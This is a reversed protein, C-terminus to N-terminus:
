FSSRGGGNNKSSSSGHGSSSSSERKRRKTTTHTYIDRKALVKSSSFDLYTNCDTTNTGGSSLVMIFVIIGSVFMSGFIEILLTPTTTIPRKHEMFYNVQEIYEHLGDYYNSAKMESVMGDTIYQARKQSIYDNAKGYKQVFIERNSPYMNVVLITGDESFGLKSWIIDAYDALDTGETDQITVIAVDMDFKLSSSNLDSLLSEEEDPTLIDAYDYLLSEGSKAANVSMSQIFVPSIFLCVLLVIICKVTSKKM